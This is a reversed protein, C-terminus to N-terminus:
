FVILAIVGVDSSSATLTMSVLMPSLGTFV